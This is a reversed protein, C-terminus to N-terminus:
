QCLAMVANIVEDFQSLNSPKVLYASAHKKYAILVDLDNDSSTLIIIPIDKLEQDSRIEELVELGNKRPLNLDLIIVDPRPVESYAISQRVFGMAEVGDEVVHLYHPLNSEKFAEYSLRVDGPNDEVLLIQIAAM